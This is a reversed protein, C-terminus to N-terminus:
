DADGPKPSSANKFADASISITEAQPVVKAPNVTKNFDAANAIVVAFYPLFIAGAFCIWRFWGDILVALVICIVRVVMAVTYKIMRSRRELEPSIALQTVSQVQEAL